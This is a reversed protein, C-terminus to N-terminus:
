GGTTPTPPQWHPHTLSTLVHDEWRGNILLYDRAYGEVVFGLRRLVGGSRRNHPMYNAEIRHLGLTGFVFEIAPRLAEVMLGQGQAGAALGYGLSCSQAVGRDIRTFNATGVIGHPPGKRFLFLRLARDGFYESASQKVQAEWFRSGFFAPPRVPDFPRLHERNENFYRVIEPVDQDRAMRVELRETEFCPPGALYSPKV